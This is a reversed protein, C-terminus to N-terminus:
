GGFYVGNVYILFEGMMARYTPRLDSLQELIFDRYDKGSAM